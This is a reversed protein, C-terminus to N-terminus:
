VAAVALEGGNPPAYNVDADALDLFQDIAECIKAENADVSIPEQEM